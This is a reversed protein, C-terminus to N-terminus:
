FFASVGLSGLYYYYGNEKGLAFHGGELSAFVHFTNMVNYSLDLTLGAINEIQEPGTVTTSQRGYFIEGSGEFNKSYRTFGLTIQHSNTNDPAFYGGGSQRQFGQQHYKYGIEIRPAMLALAYRTKFVLEYSENDDSYDTGRLEGNLRVWDNLKVQLHSYIDKRTIDNALISASDDYLERSLEADWLWRGHQVKSELLLNFEDVAEQTGVEADAEVWALEGSLRWVSDVRWRGGLVVGKLEQMSATLSDEAQQHRLGITMGAREFPVNYTLTHDLRRSETKDNLYESKWSLNRRAQDILAQNVDLTTQRRSIKADYLWWRSLKAEKYSGTALLAYTYGLRTDFDEEQSLLTKYESLATAFDGSWSAANAKILRAQRQSPDITLIQDAVAGALLLRGYWSYLNGLMVLADIDQPHAATFDALADIAGDVDDCDILSQIISRFADSSLQNEHQQLLRRYRKAGKSRKDTSCYQAAQSLQKNLQAQDDAGYAPVGLACFAITALSICVSRVSWPAPYKKIM